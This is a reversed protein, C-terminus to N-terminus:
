GVPTQAIFVGNPSDEWKLRLLIGGSIVVKGEHAAQYTVPYDKTGSDAATLGFTETLFYTGDNLHVTVAEKGLKGSRRLLDRAGTLSALPHQSTGDATDTGTPAVYVNLACLRSVFFLIWTWKMGISPWDQAGHSAQTM